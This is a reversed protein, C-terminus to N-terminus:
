EITTGEVDSFLSSISNYDKNLLESLYASLKLKKPNRALEIVAAKIKSIARSNKDEIVEFGLPVIKGRLESLVKDDPENVLEVEGLDVRRYPVKMNDLAQAVSMRCRDCVM